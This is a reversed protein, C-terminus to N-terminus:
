GTLRVADAGYDVFRRRVCSVGRRCCGCRVQVRRGQAPVSTSASAGVAATRVVLLSVSALFLRVLSVLGITLVGLRLRGVRRLGVRMRCAIVRRLSRRLVFLVPGLDLGSWGLLALVHACGAGRGAYGVARLLLLADGACGGLLVFILLLGSLLFNLGLVGFRLLGSAVGLAADVVHVAEVNIGVVAEHVGVAVVEVLVAVILEAAEVVVLIPVVRGLFVVVLRRGAVVLVVAVLLEVGFGLPFFALVCTIILVGPLLLLLFLRFWLPVTVLLWLSLPPRTSASGM